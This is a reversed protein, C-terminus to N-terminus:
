IYDITGLLTTRPTTNTHVERWFNGGTYKFVAIVVIVLVVALLFLLAVVVKEEDASM